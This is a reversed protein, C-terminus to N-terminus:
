RGNQRSALLRNRGRGHGCWRRLRGSWGHGGRRQGGRCRRWLGEGPAVSRRAVANRLRETVVRGRLQANGPLPVHEGPRGDLLVSGLVPAGILVKRGLDDLPLPLTAKLYHSHDLESRLPGRCTGLVALAGNRLTQRLGRVARGVVPRTESSLQGGVVFPPDVPPDDPVLRLELWAIPAHALGETPQAAVILEVQQQLAAVLGDLSGVRLGRHYKGPGGVPHVHVHFTWCEEPPQEVHGSGIGLRLGVAEEEIRDGEVEVATGIVQVADELLRLGQHPRLSDVLRHPDCLGVGHGIVVRGRGLGPVPLSHGHRELGVVNDLPEGQGGRSAVLPEAPVPDVVPVDPALLLHPPQDPVVAAGPRDELSHLGRHPQERPSALDGEHRQLTAPLRKACRPRSIRVGVIRVPLDVLHDEVM